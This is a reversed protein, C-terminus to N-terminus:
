RTLAVIKQAAEGMSDANTFNLGSEALMAKGQEVNTGEMRIVIPVPVSLDKV